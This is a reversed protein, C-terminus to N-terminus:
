GPMLSLCRGKRGASFLFEVLEGVFPLRECAMVGTLHFIEEVAQVAGLLSPDDGTMVMIPLTRDHAAVIKMVHCGDQGSSDLECFVAMPRQMKLLSALDCHSSVQELQIGLFECITQLGPSFRIQDEVALVLPERRPVAVLEPDGHRAKGTDNNLAPQRKFKADEWLSPGAWPSDNVIYGM